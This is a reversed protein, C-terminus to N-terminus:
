QNIGNGVQNLLTKQRRKGYTCSMMHAPATTQRSFPAAVPIIAESSGAMETLFYVATDSYYHRLYLYSDSDSDFKWRHTGIAYFYIHDGENFIGDQGKTIELPIEKLDDPSPVNNFYSLQGVNNGFIRVGSPNTFGLEILKSFGIRYVGEGTVTVRYWKGTSLLSEEAYQGSEGAQSWLKATMLLILASTLSFRM